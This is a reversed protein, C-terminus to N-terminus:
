RVDSTISRIIDQNVAQRDVEKINRKVLNKINQIVTYARSIYEFEDPLM